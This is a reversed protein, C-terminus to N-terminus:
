KAVTSPVVSEGIAPNSLDFLAYGSTENAPALYRTIIPPFAYPKYPVDADAGATAPNKELILATRKAAPFPDTPHIFGAKYSYPDAKTFSM